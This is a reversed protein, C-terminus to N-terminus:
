LVFTLTACSHRRPTRRHKLSYPRFMVPVSTEFEVSLKGEEAGNSVKSLGLARRCVDLEKIEKEDRSRVLYDM